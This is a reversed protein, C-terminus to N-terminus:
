LLRQQEVELKPKEQVSLPIKSIYPYSDANVEGKKKLFLGGVTTGEGAKLIDDWRSFNRFDPCLDTKAWSGNDLQFEVRVFANGNRSQKLPHIKKITAKIM